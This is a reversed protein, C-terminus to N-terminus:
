GACSCINLGPKQISICIRPNWMACSKTVVKKDLIPMRTCFVDEVKDGQDM